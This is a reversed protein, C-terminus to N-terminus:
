HDFEIELEALIWALARKVHRAQRRSHPFLHSRALTQGLVKLLLLLGEFDLLFMLFAFRLAHYPEHAFLQCKRVPRLM